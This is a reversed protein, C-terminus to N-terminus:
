VAVRGSWGPANCCQAPYSVLRYEYDNTTAARLITLGDREVPHILEEMSYLKWNELRLAFAIGRPCWRDAYARGMIGGAVFEITQYGFKTESDRFSRYGRNSLAAELAQWDEPHMFWTKAGKGKYRGTMYSGLTKIRDEVGLTAIVAAPVRCGALRQTDETRVMGALTPPSDDVWIFSQVGNIISTTTNGKFDGDRFLFDNNAFGTIGAVGGAQLTVNGNTRDVSAVTGAAGARLTDSTLSGDNASARLKMGPEYNVAQTPETLTIVEGSVSLRRGISGGGNGYMYISLADAAQEYLGDIEATKNDIFAALNSRSMAIVRDSMSVSANYEGPNLTFKKTGLNTSNTQALGAGGGTVGQPATYVLPVVLSESLTSTDKPIMGLFPRDSFMLSEYKSAYRTKLLAGFTAVTSAPM